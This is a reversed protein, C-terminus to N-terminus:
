TLFAPKNAATRNIVKDPSAWIGGLGVASLEASGGSAGGLGFKDVVPFKATIWLFNSIKAQCSNTASM